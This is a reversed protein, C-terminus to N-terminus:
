GHTGKGSCGRGKCKQGQNTPKNGGSTGTTTGSTSGRPKPKAGNNTEGANNNNSNETRRAVRGNATKNGNDNSTRASAAWGGILAASVLCAFLLSLLQATGSNKKMTFRRKKM